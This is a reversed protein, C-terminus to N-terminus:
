GSAILDGMRMYHPEFRHNYATYCILGKRRSLAELQLITLDDEAWLPKEVLVHKGNQLCYSILEAKPKDPVCALVADFANLPVDELLRYEAESNAPDVSAVYDAGAHRRRKYGQVGLGAVIVRM